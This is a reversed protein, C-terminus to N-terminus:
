QLRGSVQNQTLTREPPDPVFQDWHRRGLLLNLSSILFRWHRNVCFMHGGTWGGTGPSLGMNANVELESTGPHMTPPVFRYLPPEIPNAFAAKNAVPTIRSALDRRTKEMGYNRYELRLPSTWDFGARPAM